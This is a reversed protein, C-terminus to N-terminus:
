YPLGEVGAFSSGYGIGGGPRAAKMGYYNAAGGIISSAAGWYGAQRAYKANQGAVRGQYRLNESEIAFGRAQLGGEYRINLADLEANTASQAAIALPSGSGVDVGSQATAAAQAGLVARGRRRQAEERAGAQQWAIRANEAAVDANYDYASQQSKYNSSQANGEVISGVARMATGGVILATVPDM